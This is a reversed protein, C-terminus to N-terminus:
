GMFQLYDADKTKANRIANKIAKVSSNAPLTVAEEGYKGHMTSVCIADKWIEVKIHDCPDKLEPPYYDAKTKLVRFGLKTLWKKQEDTLLRAM